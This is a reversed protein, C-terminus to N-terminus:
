ARIFVPTGLPVEVMLRRLVADGARLCGATSPAGITSRAPAGHIAVRDGGQWGPPLQPQRASFAIICCGYWWGFDSGLM